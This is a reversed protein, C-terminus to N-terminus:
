SVSRLLNYVERVQRLTDEESGSTDIVYDAFKRKEELPLQRRIRALAEERSLGDREIARAVQQPEGCVTVILKDLRKYTGAEIMVAAEIVVIARPNRAAIEEM